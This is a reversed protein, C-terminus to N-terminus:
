KDRSHRSKCMGHLLFGVIAAGDNDGVAFHDLRRAVVDEFVGVLHIDREEYDSIRKPADIEAVNEQSM